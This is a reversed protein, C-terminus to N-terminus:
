PLLSRRGLYHLADDLEDALCGPIVVARRLWDIPLSHNLLARSCVECLIQKAVAASLDTTPVSLLKWLREFCSRTLGNQADAVGAKGSVYRLNQAMQKEKGASGFALTKTVTRDALMM